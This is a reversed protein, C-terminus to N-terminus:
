LSAGVTVIWANQSTCEVHDVLRGSGVPHADGVWRLRQGIKFDVLQGVDRALVIDGIQCIAESHESLTLCERAGDM